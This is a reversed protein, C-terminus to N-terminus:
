ERGGVSINAFKVQDDNYHDHDVYDHDHDDYDHGPDDYDHDNEDYVHDDCDDHDGNYVNNEVVGQYTQM